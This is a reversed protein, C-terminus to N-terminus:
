QRGPLVLVGACGEVADRNLIGAQFALVNDRVRRLTKLYAAQTPDLRTEALLGAMGLVGNLPTRIEHSLTAFLREREVARRLEAHENM